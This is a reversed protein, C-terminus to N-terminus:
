AASAGGRVDVASLRRAVSPVQLREGTCLFAERVVDTSRDTAMADGGMAELVPGAPEFCVVTTGRWKLASVEQRLLMHFRRRARADAVPQHGAMSMPSVVIALDLRRTRLVEASTPSYAGGDVYDSNGIAVPAFWGPIACSAAVARHLPAAPSGRRGFVVRRGDRRRVACIWLDQAPWEDGAVRHLAELPGGIDFDGAPLLSSMIADPRVKWPQRLAHAVMAPHPTGWPRFLNNPSFPPFAPPGEGFAEKLRTGIESMPAEVCFAALDDAPMGTRLMAGTVSGASSGVIIESTRPDWGLHHQLAALVGAHFAQGVVGGAGLVLGVRPAM